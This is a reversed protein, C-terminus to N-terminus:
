WFRLLPVTNVPAHYAELLQFCCRGRYQQCPPRATHTSCCVPTATGEPPGSSVCPVPLGRCFWGGDWRQVSHLPLNLCSSDAVDGWPEGSLWGDMQSQPLHSTVDGYLSGLLFFRTCHTIIDHFVIIRVLTDLM